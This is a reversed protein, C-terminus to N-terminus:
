LKYERNHGDWENANTKVCENKRRNKAEISNNRLHISSVISYFFARMRIKFKAVVAVIAAAAAAAAAIWNVYIM